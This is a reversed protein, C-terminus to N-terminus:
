LVQAVHMHQYVVMSYPYRMDSANTNMVNASPSIVSVNKGGTLTRCESKVHCVGGVISCSRLRRAYAGAVGRRRRTAGTHTCRMTPNKWLCRLYTEAHYQRMYSIGHGPWIQGKGNPRSNFCESPVRMSSTMVVRAKYAAPTGTGLIM